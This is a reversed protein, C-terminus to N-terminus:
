KSKKPRGRKRKEVKEVSEKEENDEIFNKNKFLEPSYESLEELTELISDQIVEQIEGLNDLAILQPALRNSLSLLRGKLNMLSETMVKEIITAPHLQNKLESIKLAKLETDKKIKKIEEKIKEDKLNVDADNKLELYEIYGQVSELFLYKGNETKKIIGENALNRLHRDTVGLLKALETVRIIQNEKVLM